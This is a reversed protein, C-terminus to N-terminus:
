ANAWEEAAAAGAERAKAKSKMESMGKTLCERLKAHYTKSHVNNRSREAVADDKLL